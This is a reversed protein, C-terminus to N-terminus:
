SSSLKSRDRGAHSREEGEKESAEFGAVSEETTFKSGFITELTPELRKAYGRPFSLVRTRTETILYIRSRQFRAELLDDYAVEIDNKEAHTLQMQTRIRNRSRQTLYEQLSFGTIGGMLAGVIFLFELGVIALVLALGATVLVSSLRKLILKSDLLVLQYINGRVVVRDVVLRAKSTEAQPELGPTAKTVLGLIINLISIPLTFALGDPFSIGFILSLTFLVIGVALINKRM